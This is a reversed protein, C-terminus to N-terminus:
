DGKIEAKITKIEPKSHGNEKEKLQTVPLTHIDGVFNKIVKNHSEDATAKGKENDKQPPAKQNKSKHEAQSPSSLPQKMTETSTIPPTPPPSQSSAPTTTAPQNTPATQYVYVPVQKEVVVTRNIYVPKEVVRDVYVPRDKFITHNVYVPVTKVVEVTRNVYVPKEITRNLYKTVEVYVPKEIAKPTVPISTAVPAPITAALSSEPPNAASSAYALVVATSAIAGAIAFAVLLSSAKEVKNGILKHRWSKEDDKSNNNVNALPPPM